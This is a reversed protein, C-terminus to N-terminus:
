IGIIIFEESNSKQNGVWLTQGDGSLAISRPYSGGSPVNEILKLEPLSSVDFVTVKARPLASIM